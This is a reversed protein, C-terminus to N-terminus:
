SLNATLYASNEIVGAKEFHNIIFILHQSAMPSDLKIDQIAEVTYMIGTEITEKKGIDDTVQIILDCVKVFEQERDYHILAYKISQNVLQREKNKNNVFIEKITELNNKGYVHESIAERLISKTEESVNQKLIRKTKNSQVQQFDGLKGFSVNKGTKKNQSTSIISAKKILPSPITLTSKNETLDLILFQLKKSLHNSCLSSLSKYVSELRDQNNSSLHPSLQKILYCSAELQYESSTEKTSVEFFDFVIFSNILKEKYLLSIFKSLPVLLESNQLLGVSSKNNLEQKFSKAVIKSHQKMQSYFYACIKSYLGAFNRSVARDYILRVLEILLKVNYQFGKVMELGLREFNDETVKNLILRIKRAKVDLDSIDANIDVIVIDLCENIFEEKKKNKIEENEENIVVPNM